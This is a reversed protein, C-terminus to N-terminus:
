CDPKIYWCTLLVLILESFFPTSGFETVEVQARPFFCGALRLTMKLKGRGVGALANVVLVAIFVVACLIIVVIRPLINEKMNVLESSQECFNTQEARLRLGPCLSVCICTSQTVRERAVHLRGM